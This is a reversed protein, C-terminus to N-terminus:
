THTGKQYPGRLTTLSRDDRTLKSQGRDGNLTDLFPRSDCIRPVPRFFAGPRLFVHFARVPDPEGYDNGGKYRAQRVTAVHDINVSLLPMVGWASRRVTAAPGTSDM